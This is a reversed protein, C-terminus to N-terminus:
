PKAQVEDKLSVLFAVVDEIQEATFLPKDRYAAAVRLRGSNVFYAPMITDKNIKTSDVLRLRLQGESLRNGVGTLSPALTGFFREEPFPGSHCLLCLGRQRDSILGRGRLADGPRGTLSVIIQDGVIDYPQSAEAIASRSVTLALFTIMLQRLNIM